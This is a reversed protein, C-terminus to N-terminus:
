KGTDAHVGDVGYLFRNGGGGTAALRSPGM